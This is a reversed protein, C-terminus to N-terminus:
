NREQQFFHYRKGERFARSLSRKAVSPNIYRYLWLMHLDKAYSRRFILRVYRGDTHLNDFYIFTKKAHEPNAEWFKKTEIWNIKMHETGYPTDREIAQFAGINCPLPVIKGDTVEKWLQRLFFSVCRRLLTKETKQTRRLINQFDIRGQTM